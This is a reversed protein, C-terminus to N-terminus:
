TKDGHIISQSRHCKALDTPSNLNFLLRHDPWFFGHAHRQHTMIFEKLGFTHHDNLLRQFLERSVYVPHGPMARFYPVLITPGPRFHQALNIMCLLLRQECFPSDVPTIFLGDWDRHAYKVVTKISGLYGLAPYHNTTVVTQDLRLENRGKVILSAPLTIFISQPKVRQFADVLRNVAAQGAIPMLAKPMGLRYSNGAAAIIVGIKIRM